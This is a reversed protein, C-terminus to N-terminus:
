GVGRRRDAPSPHSGVFRIQWRRIATGRMGSEKSAAIIAGVDDEAWFNFGTKLYDGPFLGDAIIRRVVDLSYKKVQENTIPGFERRTRTAIQWLGIYDDALERLCDRAIKIIKEM